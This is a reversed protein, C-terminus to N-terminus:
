GAAAADRLAVPRAVLAIWAPPEPFAATPGDAEAVHCGPLMTRTKM